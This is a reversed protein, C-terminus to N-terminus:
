KNQSNIVMKEFKSGDYKVGITNVFQYNKPKEKIILTEGEKEFFSYQKRTQFLIFKVPIKNKLLYDKLVEIEAENAQLLPIMKLNKQYPTNCIEQLIKILDTLNKMQKENQNDIWTLDLTSQAGEKHDTFIATQDAQFPEKMQLKEKLLAVEKKLQKIEVKNRLDSIRLTEIEKILFDIDKEM